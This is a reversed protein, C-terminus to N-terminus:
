AEHVQKSGVQARQLWLLSWNSNPGARWGFDIRSQASTFKSAGNNWANIFCPSLKYVNCYAYSAIHILGMMKPFITDFLHAMPSSIKFTSAPRIVLRITVNVHRWADNMLMSQPTILSRRTAAVSNFPSSAQSKLFLTTVNLLIM